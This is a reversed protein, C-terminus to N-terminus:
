FLSLPYKDRLNRNYDIQKYTNGIMADIRMNDDLMFLDRSSDNMYQFSDLRRCSQTNYNNIGGVNTVVNRGFINWNPNIDSLIGTLESLQGRMGSSSMGSPFRYSSLINTTINPLQSFIAGGGLRNVMSGMMDLNGSRACEGLCNSMVGNVVQDYEPRGNYADLMTEMGGRSGMGIAETLFTQLLAAEGNLGISQAISSNGTLGGLYSSMALSSSLDSINLKDIYSGIKSMAGFSGPGSGTISQYNYGISEMIPGGISGGIGRGYSGMSSTGLTDLLNERDFGIKGKTNILSAGATMLLDKNASIKDVVTGATNKLRDMLSTKVKSNTVSYVDVVALDDKPGSQFATTAINGTM